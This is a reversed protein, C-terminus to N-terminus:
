FHVGYSFGFSTESRNDTRKQFAGYGSVDQRRTFEFSVTGGFTQSAFSGIQDVRGFTETGVAFVTSGKIPHEKPRAIPFGLKAMGSPRWESGLGSFQNRAESFRLSLNWENPLYFIAFESISLIRATRYWYWHQTHGIELGRMLGQPQLRWGKDYEFFAEAKPIIGNDRAGSGGITLAGLSLMTATVSADAKQANVAGLYYDSAGVCTQWRPTWRSKLVVSGQHNADAFSFLDTNVAISFYHRPEDERAAIAARAEVSVPNLKLAQGFELKAEARRGVSWLARGLAVRIDARNPDLAVADGLTAVADESRGQAVYVSAMGLYNDPDNPAAAILSRYEYEAPILQGSWTLIRARWARANQDRPSEGVKRDILKMASAWDKNVVYSRVQLEWAAAGDQAAALLLSLWMISLCAIFLKM